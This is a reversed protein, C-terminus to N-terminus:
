KAPPKLAAASIMEEIPFPKAIFKYKAAADVYPQLESPDLYLARGPRTMNAVIQPDVGSFDALVGSTEREHNSVYVSADYLVRNFKEVLDRHVAVWDSTAFYASVESRKGMADLPYGVIRFKDSAVAQSMVPQFVISADIRGQELAPPAAPPPIEVFHVGQPDVGNMTFWSLLSLAFIDNLSSVGITKGILDHPTHIASSAAVIIASDRKEFSYYTTPAILVFPLGRAHASILSVVQSGGIDIAGGAVSSAVEAGARMKTLEVDIGAKKFLGASQAYLLATSQDSAVLGVRIVPLAAPSAGAAAPTQAAGPRALAVLALTALLRFVYSRSPCRM